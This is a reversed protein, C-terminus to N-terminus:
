VIELVYLKGGRYKCYFKVTNSLSNNLVRQGHNTIKVKAKNHKWQQFYSQFKTLNRLNNIVITASGTRNGTICLSVYRGGYVELRVQTMKYGKPAVGVEQSSQGLQKLFYILRNNTVYSM